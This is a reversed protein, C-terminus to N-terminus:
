RGALGPPAAFTERDAGLPRLALRLTELDSRLMAGQESDALASEVRRMDAEDLAKFLYGILDDRM